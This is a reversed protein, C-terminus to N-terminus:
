RSAPPPAEASTVWATWWLDRLLTAGAALREAAFRKHAASKTTAAFAEQKDLIYLQEVLDNSKQVFAWIEDRPNRVIQAEVGMLPYLDNIVIQAGVFEEEFRYHFGRERNYTTYGKPNPGSWGNYHITSHHPNAADTVYHGLIGADNIIRQEIWQRKLRDPENRWLRFGIRLRQFLEMMRFPSFGANTPKQGAKILEATYDYRNIARRAPEPVLELDIFHDPAAASDMTRDLQSELRDRWRDPEPNLYSLQDSAKRFFDPVTPPLKEAAAKGSIAHGHAGWGRVGPTGVLLLVPLLAMILLFFRIKM